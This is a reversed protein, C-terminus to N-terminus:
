YNQITWKDYISNEFAKIQNMGNNMIEVVKM